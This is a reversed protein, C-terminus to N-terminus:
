LNTTSLEPEEDRVVWFTFRGILAGTQTEVSCRWRGVELYSKQSFGRYGEDRGGAIPFSVRSRTEWRDQAENYQEWRHYVPTTISSPAFVSSFCYATRNSPLTYTRSTSRLLEYWRPDEYLAVYSGAARPLISHYVGIERLALPVPPIVNLFYLTSFGIFLAGVTGVMGRVHTAVNERASIYLLFLFVAIVALSVVGSLVFAWVGVSGLLIPVTLVVYLLILLYYIAINFRLQTYRNRLFENSLLLGGLVCFFLLSGALTGSRAYLVLLGSTLNGFAFQLAVPLFLMFASGTSGRLSLLFIIGGALTLYSLLIANDYLQDPRTLTFSDFVFGFLLAGAGLHREYRRWFALLREYKEKFLRM